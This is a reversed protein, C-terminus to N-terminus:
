DAGVVFRKKYMIWDNILHEFEVEFNRTVMFKIVMFM